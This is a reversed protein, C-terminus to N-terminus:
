RGGAAAELFRRLDVVEYGDALAADVILPLAEADLVVGAGNSGVHMQIIAGPAFADVARKVAKEVTMGGQPGLYGNTDASFEIAAYGLDNVDAVSEPSTESYPFRFFPLPEAGSAARIAADAGRVEDAREASGLDAFSPHSYSHNGLGHGAEAIARVAAPRSEAFRGTPFFTAPLKRRRLEALVTDIGDVDWAANFTLAVVKRDTPLRRIEDGMLSAPPRPGAAAATRGAAAAASAPVFGALGASGACGAFGACLLGALASRREM